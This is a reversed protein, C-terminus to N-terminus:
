WGRRRSRPAPAPPANRHRRAPPSGACGQRLPGAGFAAPRAQRAAARGARDADARLVSRAGAWWRTGPSARVSPFSRHLRRLLVARTLRRRGVVGARTLLDAGVEGRQADRHRGFLEVGRQLLGLVGPQRVEVEQMAQQGVLRAQATLAGDLPANPFGPEAVGPRQTLEVPGEIGRDAPHLHLREGGAVETGADSGPRRRGFRLPCSSKIWLM